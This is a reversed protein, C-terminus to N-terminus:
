FSDRCKAIKESRLLTYDNAPWIILLHLCHKLELKLEEVSAGLKTNTFLSIQVDFKCEKVPGIAIKSHKEIQGMVQKARQIVPAPLGALRGASVMRGIREEQNSKTCFVIQDPLEKVTVQYTANPM